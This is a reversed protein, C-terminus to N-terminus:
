GATATAPIKSRTALAGFIKSLQFFNRTTLEFKALLDAVGVQAIPAAVHQLENNENMTLRGFLVMREEQSLSKM